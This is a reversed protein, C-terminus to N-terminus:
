LLEASLSSDTGDEGEVCISFLGGLCSFHAELLTKREASETGGLSPGSLSRVQADSLEPLLAKVYGGMINALERVTDHLEEHDVEDKSRHFMKSAIERAVTASCRVIVVLDTFCRIRVYGSLAGEDPMSRECPFLETGVGDLMLLVGEVAGQIEARLHQLAPPQSM